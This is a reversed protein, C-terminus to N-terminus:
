AKNIFGIQELHSDLKVVGIQCFCGARKIVWSVDSLLMQGANIYAVVATCLDKNVVSIQCASSQKNIDGM